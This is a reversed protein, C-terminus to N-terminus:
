TLYRRSSLVVQDIGLGDERVQIRMRQAGGGAFYVLPGLVGPGYGNDQWGWGEEGCGGCDELVIATASTTGIRYVPNGAEDVSGDFQVYLSDNDYNNNQAISRVWLRYPKGAVATFTLDFYSSPASLAQTLKPAGADPNQLRGGAAASADATVFWNGAIVPASRAYLVVEDTGMATSDAGVQVTVAASTASAGANDFARATLAYSGAPVSNWAVSYPLTTRTALLTAGAYFEVRAITGDPDTANASVTISAPATFSAGTAPATVAVAPPANPAPLGTGPRAVITADNKPGGPPQNLFQRSSVVVQDIGIGDERAQIRMQQRGSTGFYVVPGLVDIPWGSDQWGWGSLGCGDCEELNITLGTVTGMRYVAAGSATISHDFQVYVADNLPSDAQAKGRIWVRYPKGALADFSFDVYSTPRTPVWGLQPAGADPSQLRVGSAATSDNVRQWAGAITADSPYLVIEDGPAVPNAVTVSIVTSLTRNSAADSAAAQLRHVGNPTLSTNWAFNFPGTASVAFPAGDMLLEVRVVAQDDQADVAVSVMGAVTTSDLPTRIQATPPSSVAKVDPTAYEAIIGAHDSPAPQGPTVMGFRIVSLPSLWKSWAYDIRKYLNGEPTGCGARNWMGTGGDALGQVSTWADLYGAERLMQVPRKKSYSAGCPIQTGEYANLDGVLVHPQGAPLANMGDITQQSQVEFISLEEPTTAAAGYWHATFLVVSRSCQSDLCVPLRLVWMTDAPNLNRTTDLQFWQEPGAFGYRAVMGVGNRESSAAAWGLASKVGAPSACSWAEALGLAVVSADSGVSTTLERQVIGLGWANLPLSANTCNGSDAFPTAVGPLGPEGKGSQINYFAVKFTRAPTQARLAVGLTGLAAALLTAAAVRVTRAM